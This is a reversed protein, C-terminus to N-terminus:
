MVLYIVWLQEPCLGSGSSDRARPGYTMVKQVAVEDDRFYSRNSVHTYIVFQAM